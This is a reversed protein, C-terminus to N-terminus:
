KLLSHFVLADKRVANESVKYNLCNNIELVYLRAGYYYSKEGNKIAKKNQRINEADNNKCEAGTM